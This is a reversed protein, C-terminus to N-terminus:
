LQANKKGVLAAMRSHSAIIMYIPQLYDVSNLKGLADGNLARVKDENITYYGLLQNNSGDDLTIELTFSELLDFELLADIFGINHEHGNHVTELVATTKDLFDTRGGHELFINDGESHSVRPSEMDITVVRKREAEAQGQTEQFGILFPQRKVMLPIYSADWGNEDLFLNEKAEFGFLAIAYFRGTESDKQFFIPYCSQIDRFEFPFTMAYMVDDGYESSRKGIIKIDKHDINNLLEYKAM